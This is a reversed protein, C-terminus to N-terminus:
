PLFLQFTSQNEGGSHDHGDEDSHEEHDNGEDDSHEDKHNDHEDTACCSEKKVKKKLSINTM